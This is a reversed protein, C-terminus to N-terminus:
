LIGAILRKTRKRYAAYEPFRELLLMEEHRGKAYLYAALATTLLLHLGSGRWLAWGTSAMILGGYIPHRTHAFVGTQVLTASRHPRPFPSLNPGLDRLGKAALGLGAAVLLAGPVM